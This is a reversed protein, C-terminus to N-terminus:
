AGIKCFYLAVSKAIPNEFVASKFTSGVTAGEATEANIVVIVLESDVANCFAIVEAIPVKILGSVIIGALRPVTM